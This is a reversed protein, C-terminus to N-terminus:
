FSLILIIVQVHAIGLRPGTAINARLGIPPERSRCRYPHKRTFMRASFRLFLPPPRTPQTRGGSYPDGCLAAVVYCCRLYVIRFFITSVPVMEERIRVSSDSDVRPAPSSPM